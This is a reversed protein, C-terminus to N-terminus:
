GEEESEDDDAGRVEEWELEIAKLGTVRKVFDIDDRELRVVTTRRKAEQPASSSSSSASASRSPSSNSETGKSPTTYSQSSSTFTATSPKNTPKVGNSSPLPPQGNLNGRKWSAHSDDAGGSADDEDPATAFSSDELVEEEEGAGDSPQAPHKTAPAPEEFAPIIWAWGASGAIDPLLRLARNALHVKICLERDSRIILGPGEEDSSSAPQFHHWTGKSGIKSQEAGREAAELRAFWELFAFRREGKALVEDDPWNFHRVREAEALVNVGWAGVGEANGHQALRKAAGEHTNLESCRGWDATSPRRSGLTRRTFLHYATEGRPSKAPSEDGDEDSLNAASDGRQEHGFKDLWRDEGPVCSAPRHLNASTMTLAATAGEAFPFGTREDDRAVAAGAGPTAHASGPSCVQSSFVDPARQSPDGCAGFVKDRRRAGREWAELKDLLKPDYRGLTIHYGDTKTFSKARSRSKAATDDQEASSSDQLVSIRLLRVMRPEQGARAPDMCARSDEKNLIRGWYGVWRRQSAISVGHKRNKAMPGDLAPSASGSDFRDISNSSAVASSAASVGSNASVGSASRQSKRWLDLSKRGWSQSSTTDHSPRRSGEVSGRGTDTGPKIRTSGSPSVNLSPITPTARGSAVLAECSRGTPSAGLAARRSRPTINNMGAIDTASSVRLRSGAAISNRPPTSASDQSNLLTHRSRPTTPEAFSLRGSTSTRGPTDDGSTSTLGEMRPADQYARMVASSSPRRPIAPPLSPPPMARNSSPVELLAPTSASAKRPSMDMSKRSVASDASAHGKKAKMRRSTHLDFVAELKDELASLEASSALSDDLNIHTATFSPRRSSVASDNHSQSESARRLFAFSSKRSARPSSPPQLHQQPEQPQLHASSKRSRLASISRKAKLMLASPKRPLSNGNDLEKSTRGEDSTVPTAVLSSAETSSISRPAGKKGAARGLNRPDQPPPPLKPLSVLYCCALTGSRGKGAKCHIVVVNQPDDAFWATMDAVVMPILSLPPPHHDPFPYRSVALPGLPWFDTSTSHDSLCATTSVEETSNRGMM